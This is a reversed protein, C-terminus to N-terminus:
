RFSTAQRSYSSTVSKNQVDSYFLSTINHLELDVTCTMKLAVREGYGVQSVTTGTFDVNTVGYKSLDDLMDNKDDETLYGETMMLQLYTDGVSCISNKVDVVKTYDIMMVVMLYFVIVGFANAIFAAVVTAEGNMKKRLWYM